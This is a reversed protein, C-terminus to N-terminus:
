AFLLYGECDPLTSDAWHCPAIRELDFESCKEETGDICSRTQNQIGPGCSPDKGTGICQGVNEWTGIQAKPAANFIYIYWLKFQPFHNYFKDNVNWWKSVLVPLGTANGHKMPSELAIVAMAWLFLPTVSELDKKKEEIVHWQVHVGTRGFDGNEM